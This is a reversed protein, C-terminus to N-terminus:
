YRMCHPCPRLQMFYGPDVTGSAFSVRNLKKTRKDKMSITVGVLGRLSSEESVFNANMRFEDESKECHSRITDNM